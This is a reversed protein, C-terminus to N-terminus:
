WEIFNFLIKRCKNHHTIVKYLTLGFIKYKKVTTKLNSTDINHEKFFRIMENEATKYDNEFKRSKTKVISGLRKRYFYAVDPVSVLVNSYFIIKHTLWIDEYVMYAPFNLEHKIFVSKRYLKNWLYNSDPCDFIRLKEKYDTAIEYKEIRLLYKSKRKNGRVISAVAIDAKNRQCADYLKEIYDNSLLYDDSDVFTIFEGDAEQIGTNRAVSVGEHEHLILKIRQDSQSYRNLIEVSGDTSGDDICIIEIDKFTQNIVSDLCEPLYKEVNYVPIIVSIKAM